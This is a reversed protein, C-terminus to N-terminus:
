FVIRSPGDEKTKLFPENKRSDDWIQGTLRARYICTQDSGWNSTVRLYFKGAEFGTQYQDAGDLLMYFSQVWNAHSYDYRGCAILISSKSPPPEPTEPLNCRDDYWPSRERLQSEMSEAAEVTDLDAWLQFDKPANSIDESGPKPVHEIILNAPTIKRSTIIALQAQGMYTKLNKAACWCQGTEKWETLATVPPPTLRKFSRAFWGAPRAEQPILASPSTHHPDVIAGMAPSFWNVSHMTDFSNVLMNSKALISLQARLENPTNESVNRSVREAIEHAMNMAERNGAEILTSLRKEMDRGYHDIINQLGDRDIVRKNKLAEDVSIAGAAEAIRSASQENAAVFTDFLDDSGQIKSTIAHWFEDSIVMNGDVVNVVMRPPLYDEISSIRDELATVNGELATHNGGLETILQRLRVNIMSQLVPEKVPSLEELEEKLFAKYKVFMWLKELYAPPQDYGPVGAAIKLGRFFTDRRDAARVPLPVHASVGLLTAGLLVAWLNRWLYRPVAFLLIPLSWHSLPAANNTTHVNPGDRRPSPPPMSDHRQSRVDSEYLAQSGVYTGQRSVPPQMHLEEEESEELVPAIHTSARATTFGQALTIGEAALQNNLPARGRSGYAASHRVDLAPLAASVPTTQRSRARTTRGPTAMTPQQQHSSVLLAAIINIGLLAVTSALPPPVRGNARGRTRSRM